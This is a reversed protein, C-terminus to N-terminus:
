LSCTSIPNIKWKVEFYKKINLLMEQDNEVYQLVGVMYVLDFNVNSLAFFDSESLLHVNTLKFFTCLREVFVRNEERVDYGFFTIKKYRLAFLILHLGEGFGIELM